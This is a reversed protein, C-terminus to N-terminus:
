HIPTTRTGRTQAREFKLNTFIFKNSAPYFGLQVVMAHM